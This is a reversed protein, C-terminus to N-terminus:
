TLDRRLVLAASGKGSSYYAERRGVGHFGASRYLRQAAVNDEGAELFVTGVGLGALRRLHFELLRGALGKGRRSRAVAISLVEAEPPVVRSLVFGGLTRGVKAQHAIINSQSLLAEFEGESWARHFSAAHLAALAQADAPRALALVPARRAFLRGAISSM